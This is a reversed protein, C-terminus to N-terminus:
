VKPQWGIIQTKRTSGSRWLNQGQAPGSTLLLFICLNLIQNMREIYLIRFPPHNFKKWRIILLSSQIPINVKQIYPDYNPLWHTHLWHIRQWKFTHPSLNVMAFWVGKHSDEENLQSVAFLFFIILFYFWFICRYLFYGQYM